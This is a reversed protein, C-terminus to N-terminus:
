RICPHRSSRQEHLVNGPIEGVSRVAIMLSHIVITFCLCSRTSSKANRSFKTHAGFLDGRLHAHLDIQALARVLFNSSGAVSYGRVSLTATNPNRQLNCCSEGASNFFSVLGFMVLLGTRMQCAVPLHFPLRYTMLDKTNGFSVHAAGSM